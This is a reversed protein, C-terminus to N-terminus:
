SMLFLNGGQRLGYVRRKELPRVLFLDFRHFGAEYHVEDNMLSTGQFPKLHEGKYNLHLFALSLSPLWDWSNSYHRAPILLMAQVGTQDTMDSPLVQESCLRGESLDTEEETPAPIFVKVSRVICTDSM